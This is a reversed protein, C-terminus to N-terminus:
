QLLRGRRVVAVHQLGCEIRLAGNSSFQRHQEVAHQFLAVGSGPHRFIPLGQHALVAPQLCLDGRAPTVQRGHQEAILLLVGEQGHRLPQAAPQGGSVRGDLAPHKIQQLYAHLDHGFLPRM